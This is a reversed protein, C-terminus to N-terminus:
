GKKRFTIIQGSKATRRPQKLKGGNLDDLKDESEHLYHQIEELTIDLLRPRSNRNRVRLAPKEQLRQAKEAFKFKSVVVEPRLNENVAILDAREFKLALM